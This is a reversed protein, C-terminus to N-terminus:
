QILNIIYEAGGLWFVVALLVYFSFHIMYSYIFGKKSKTIFHSFIIGSFFSAIFLIPGLVSIFLTPIHIFMSYLGFLLMDINRSVNNNFLYHISIMFFSQQFMIEFAKTVLYRNDLHFVPDLSYKINSFLSKESYISIFYYIVAISISFLVMYGLDKISFDDVYGDLEKKFFTSLAIIILLFYICSLLYRNVYDIGQPELYFIFIVWVFFWILSLSLIKFFTNMIINHVLSSEFRWGM